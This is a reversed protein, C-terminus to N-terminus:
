AEAKCLHYISHAALNRCAQQGLEHVFGRLPLESWLVEVAASAGVRPLHPYYADELTFRDSPQPSGPNSGSAAGGGALPSGDPPVVRLPHLRPLPPVTSSLPESPATADQQEQQQQLAGLVAAPQRRFSGSAQKRLSGQHQHQQQQPPPQQEQQVSAQSRLGVGSDEGGEGQPGGVGGGGLGKEAHSLLEVVAEM